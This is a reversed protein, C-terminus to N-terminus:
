LTKSHALILGGELTKQTPFGQSKTHPFRSQKQPSGRSKASNPVTRIQIAKKLERTDNM